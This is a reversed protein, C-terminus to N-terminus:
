EDRQRRDYVRKRKPKDDGDDFQLSVGNHRAKHRQQWDSWAYAIGAMRAKDRWGAVGSTLHWRTCVPCRYARQPPNFRNGFDTAASETPFQRKQTCSKPKHM